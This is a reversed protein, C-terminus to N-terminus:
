EEIVESNVDVSEDEAEVDDEVTPVIMLVDIEQKLM